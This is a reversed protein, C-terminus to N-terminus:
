SSISRIGRGHMSRTSCVRVPVRRQHQHVAHRGDARQVEAHVLPAHVHRQRPRLLRQRHRRPQADHAGAGLRQLGALRGLGHADEEVPLVVELEVLHAGVPGVRGGDLEEVAQACREVEEFLLPEVVDDLPV